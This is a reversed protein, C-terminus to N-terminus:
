HAKIATYMWKVIEEASQAGQPIQADFEATPKAAVIEELTKGQAALSSIRDRLTLIL